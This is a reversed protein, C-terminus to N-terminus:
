RRFSAPASAPSSCADVAGASACCVRGCRRSSSSRRSIPTSPAAHWRLTTLRMSADQLDAGIEDWGKAFEAEGPRRFVGNALESAGFGTFRILQRQEEVTAPREEAEIQAALRVAAVSDRARQKWGKALGRDGSLYFNDGRKRPGVESRQTLEIAPRVSVPAPPPPDLEHDDGGFDTAFATVGLGLSSSPATNGFLDLTFPDDHAM